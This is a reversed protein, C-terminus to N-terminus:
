ADVDSNRQESHSSSVTDSRSGSAGGRPVKALAPYYWKVLREPAIGLFYGLRLSWMKLITRLVGHQQWRRASTQVRARLCSPRVVKCLRASLDIDEMLPMDRYAGVRHFLDANVFIAQDGTAIGTLRSRWNMFAEICRYISPTADIHVDFRGWCSESPCTSLVKLLEAIAAPTIRTDAHIFWILEGTAAVAGSNMQRARGPRESLVQLSHSRAINVTHDTSGGDVVIIEADNGILERLESLRQHLTESENLVPIVISIQSVTESVVISSNSQLDNM